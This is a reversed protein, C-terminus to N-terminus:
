MPESLTFGASRASQIPEFVPRNRIVSPALSGSFTVPSSLVGSPLPRTDSASTASNVPGSVIIADPWGAGPSSSGAASPRIRLSSAPLVQVETDSSPLASKWASSSDPLV